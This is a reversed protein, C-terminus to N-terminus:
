NDKRVNKKDIRIQMNLKGSRQDLRYFFTKFGSLNVM